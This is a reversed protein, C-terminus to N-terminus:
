SKRKSSNQRLVIIVIIVIYIVYNRYTFNHPATNATAPTACGGQPLSLNISITQKSFASM